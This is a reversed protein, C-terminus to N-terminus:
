FLFFSYTYVSIFTCKSFLFIKSALNATYKHFGIPLFRMERVFTVWQHPMHTWHGGHKAGFFFPRM